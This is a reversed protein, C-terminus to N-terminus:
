PSVSLPVPSFNLFTFKKNVSVLRTHVREVLDAITLWKFMAFLLEPLLEHAPLHTKKNPNNAVFTSKSSRHSLHHGNWGDM